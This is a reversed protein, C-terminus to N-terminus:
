GSQQCLLTVQQHSLELLAQATYVAVVEWPLHSIRSLLLHLRVKLHPPFQCYNMPDHALRDAVQQKQLQMTPLCSSGELLEKRFISKFHRMLM